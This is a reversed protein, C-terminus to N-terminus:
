RYRRPLYAYATAKAQKSLRELHQRNYHLAMACQYWTRHGICRLRWAEAVEAPRVHKLFEYFESELEAQEAAYQAMREANAKNREIAVAMRGDLEESKGVMNAAIEELYSATRESSQQASKATKWRRSAESVDELWKDVREIRESDTLRKEQSM